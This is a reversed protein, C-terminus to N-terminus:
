MEADVNLRKLGIFTFSIFAKGPQSVIQMLVHKQHKYGLKPTPIVHSLLLLYVPVM